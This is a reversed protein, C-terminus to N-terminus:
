AGCSDKKNEVVTARLMPKGSSRGSLGSALARMRAAAASAASEAPEEALTEPDLGDTEPHQTVDM